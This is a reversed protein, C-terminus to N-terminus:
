LSKSRALIHEKIIKEMLDPNETQFKDFLDAEIRAMIDMNKIIATNAVELKLTCEVLRVPLTEKEDCLNKGGEQILEIAKQLSTGIEAIIREQDEKKM